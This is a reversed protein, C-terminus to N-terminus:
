SHTKRGWTNGNKEESVREERKRLSPWILDIEKREVRFDELGRFM